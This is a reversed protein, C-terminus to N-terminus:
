TTNILECLSNLQKVTYLPFAWNRKQAIEENRKLTDMDLTPQVSDLWRHMNQFQTQRRPSKYPAGDISKLYEEKTQEDFSPSFYERRADTVTKFETQLRVTATAMVTNCPSCGLWANCWCEMARDYTRGGTGHVFLACAVLRALLTLLLARPHLANNTKWLPLEGDELTAVHSDPYAEVASNYADICSRPNSQMESVVANGFGCHLLETATIVHHVNAWPSMLQVLANAFQIAVNEGEAKRLASSFPEIDNIIQVRPQDIMAVDPLITAIEIDQEPTKLIGVNGKHHDVVLYVLVGDIEQVLRNAAIFKALIGPHFFTPQHGVIVIPKDTPLGLSQRCQTQWYRLSQGFLEGKASDTLTKWTSFEPSITAVPNRTLM